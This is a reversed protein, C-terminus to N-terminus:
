FILIPISYHSWCYLLVTCDTGQRTNSQVKKSKPEQAHQDEEDVHLEVFKLTSETYVSVLLCAM